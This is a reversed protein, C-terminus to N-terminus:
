LDAIQISSTRDNWGLPVLSTIQVGVAILLSSGSLNINEWFRLLHDESKVSSIIDNWPDWGWWLFNHIYVKTLDPLTFNWWENMRPIKLTAGGFGINEFCFGTNNGGSTLPRIAGAKEQHTRLAQQLGQESTYAAFRSEAQMEATVFFHLPRGNYKTIENPAIQIGDVTLAHSPVRHILSKQAPAPLGAFAPGFSAQLSPNAQMSSRVADAYRRAFGDLTQIGEKNLLALVAEATIQGTPDPRQPQQPSSM